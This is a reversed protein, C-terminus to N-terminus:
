RTGIKRQPQPYEKKLQENVRVRVGVRDRVGVRNRIRVGVRNRIRSRVSRHIENRKNAKM